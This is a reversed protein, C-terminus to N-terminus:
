KVTWLITGKPNSNQHGLSRLPVTECVHNNLFYPISVHYGGEFPTSNEVKKQESVTGRQFFPVLITGKKELLAGNRVKKQLVTGRPDSKKLFLVRKGLPM